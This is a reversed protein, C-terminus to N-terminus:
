VRLCPFFSFSFFSVEGNGGSQRPFFFSIERSASTTSDSGHCANRTGDIGFKGRISTPKEKKAVFSNTPGMLTRWAVIAGPKALLLAVVPGSSMYEVLRTYFSKHQHEVYFQSAQERSLRVKRQSVVTFGNARIEELIPGINEDATGPKIMAFTREVPFPTPFWWHLSSSAAAATAPVYVGNSATGFESAMTGAVGELGAALILGDVAGMGELALATCQGVCSGQLANGEPFLTSAEGNTISRSVRAVTILGRNQLYSVIDETKKEASPLIVCVTRQLENQTSPPFFFTSERVASFTSDSGHCANQQGDTGFLARLSWKSDDMPNKAEAEERAVNSNTPGILARWAAIANKRELVLAVVPGSSMFDTLNEYFSRGAHEAYFAQAQKKSLRVRKKAIITFGEAEIRQLMAESSDNARIEETTVENGNEDPEPQTVVQKWPRNVVDPKLMAFTRQVSEAPDPFFSMDGPSLNTQVTRAHLM